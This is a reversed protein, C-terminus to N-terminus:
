MAGLCGSYSSTIKLPSDILLAVNLPTRNKGFFVTVIGMKRRSPSISVLFPLKSNFSGGDNFPTNNDYYKPKFISNEIDKVKLDMSAARVLYVFKNGGLSDGDQLYFEARRKNIPFFNSDFLYKKAREQMSARVMHIHKNELKEWDMPKGDNRGYKDISCWSPEPSAEAENAVCACPLITLSFILYVSKLM